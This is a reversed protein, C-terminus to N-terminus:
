KIMSMLKIEQLSKSECLANQILTIGLDVNSEVSETAFCESDPDLRDLIIEPYQNVTEVIFNRAGYDTFTDVTWYKVHFPIDVSCESLIMRWGKGSLTNLCLPSVKNIVGKISKVIIQEKAPVIDINYWLGPLEFEKTVGGKMHNKWAPQQIANM